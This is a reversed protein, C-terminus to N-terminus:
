MRSNKSYRWNNKSPSKTCAAFRSFLYNKLLVLRLFVPFTQQGLQKEITTIM